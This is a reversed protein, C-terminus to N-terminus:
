ETEASDSEKIKAAMLFYENASSGNMLGVLTQKKGDASVWSLTGDHPQNVLFGERNMCIIHTLAVYGRDILEQASISNRNQTNFLFGQIQQLSTEADKDDLYGDNNMDKILLVDNDDRFREPPNDIFAGKSKHEDNFNGVLLLKDKSPTISSKVWILKKGSVQYPSVRRTVTNEM